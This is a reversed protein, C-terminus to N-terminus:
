TVFHNLFDFKRKENTHISRVHRKLHEGRVFCKGCDEVTCRYTRASKPSTGGTSGRKARGGTRRSRTHPVFVDDDEEDFNNEFSTPVKRGRSKKTLNPIAVPIQAYPQESQQHSLSSESISRCSRTSESLGSSRRIGAYPHYRVSSKYDGDPSPSPCYESMSLDTLAEDMEEEADEGKISNLDSSTSSRVSRSSTEAASAAASTPHATSRDVKEYDPTGVLQSLNVCPEIWSNAERQAHYPLEQHNYFDQANDGIYLPSGSSASQSDTAPSLEGIYSLTPPCEQLLNHKQLDINHLFVRGFPGVEAFTYQAYGPAEFDMIEAPSSSSSLGSSFATQGDSDSYTATSYDNGDLEPWVLDQTEVFLDNLNGSNAVSVAANQDWLHNTIGDASYFELPEQMIPSFAPPAVPTYTTSM